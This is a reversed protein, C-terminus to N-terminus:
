KKTMQAYFAKAGETIQDQNLDQKHTSIMWTYGFPDVITGCRDGWFMDTIPWKVEGGAAIAQAFLHDADPTYLYLSIPSNGLSEASQCGPMEDGMMVISDGIKITAHMTSQGDPSKLIDLLTASFAKQYFEIAKQSNKFMISPTVSHFGDPIPKTM